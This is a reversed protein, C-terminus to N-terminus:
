IEIFQLESIILTTPNLYTLDVTITQDYNIPSDKSRTLLIRAGNHNASALM